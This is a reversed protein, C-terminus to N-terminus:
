KRPSLFANRISITFLTVLLWASQIVGAFTTNLQYTMSVQVINLNIVSFLLGALGAWIVHQNALLAIMIAQYGIGATGSISLQHYTGLVIIGGCIGALFGSVMFTQWITRTTFTGHIYKAGPNLRFAYLRLGMRTRKLYFSVFVYLFFAILLAVLSFRYGSIEPLWVKQLYMDSIGASLSGVKRWPGNVLYTIIFVAIINLGIGNILEHIGSHTKLLASMFAWFAGGVGAVLIALSIVYVASISENQLLRVIYTASIAGMMIQGEVGINWFGARFTFLVASIALLLPSWNALINFMRGVSQLPPQFSTFLAYWNNTGTLFLVLRLLLFLVIFGLLFFILSFLWRKKDSMIIEM